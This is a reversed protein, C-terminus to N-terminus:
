KLTQLHLHIATLEEDTMHKFFEFPMMEPDMERNAPTVGTRMTAKFDELSWSGAVALDPSEMAGSPHLAGRLDPGHCDTCTISTLYAGYALTAGQEVENRKFDPGPLHATIDSGPLGAIIYFPLRFESPPLEHDVPQVQKVHAAIARIDEDMLNSFGHPMGNLMNGAKGVGYRVARDIDSASYSTGIGGKGSTLNGAVALFPPIDLFVKGSLDNGHCGECGHIKALHSGRALLASDAEATSILQSSPVEHVAHLRSKGIQYFIFGALLAFVLLGGLIKLTWMLIKKM